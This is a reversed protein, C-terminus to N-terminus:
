AQPPQQGDDLDMWDSRRMRVQRHLRSRWVWAAVVVTVGVHVLLHARGISPAAECGRDALLVVAAVGFGVAIAILGLKALVGDRVRPSLVAFAAAIALFASAAGNIYSVITDM